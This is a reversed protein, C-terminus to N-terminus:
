KWEDACEILGLSQTTERETELASFLRNIKPPSVLREM